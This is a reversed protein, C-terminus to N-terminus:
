ARHRYLKRHPEIIHWVEWGQKSLRDAIFRRHCRFWLKEACMVATRHRRALDELLKIGREFGDTGIYARYGGPRYGGLEEGLWRYEIGERPLIEELRERNFQPNRRSRPFRRVDVVAEIQHEKLLSVFEEVSRTSHGVTYVAGRRRPRLLSAIGAGIGILRKFPGM